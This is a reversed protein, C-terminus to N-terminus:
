APAEESLGGKRPISAEPTSLTQPEPETSSGGPPCVVDGGWRVGLHTLVRTVPSSNGPLPLAAAQQRDERLTERCSWKEVRYTTQETAWSPTIILKQCQRGPPLALDIECSQGGKGWALWSDSAGASQSGLFVNSPGM